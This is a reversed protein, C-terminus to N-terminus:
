LHPIEIGAEAAAALITQGAAVKLQRADMSLSITGSM